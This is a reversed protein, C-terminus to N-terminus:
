GVTEKEPDLEPPPRPDLLLRFFSQKNSGHASGIPAGTTVSVRLQKPRTVWEYDKDPRPAGAEDPKAM